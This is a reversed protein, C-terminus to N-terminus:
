NFPDTYRIKLNLSVFWIRCINSSTLNHMKWDLCSHETCLPGFTTNENHVISLLISPWILRGAQWPKVMVPSSSLDTLGARGSRCALSPWARGRAVGITWARGLLVWAAEFSRYDMTSRWPILRNQKRLRKPGHRIHSSYTLKADRKEKPWAKYPQIFDIKSGEVIVERSMPGHQAPSAWRAMADDWAHGLQRAPGVRAQCWEHRATSLRALHDHWPSLWRAEPKIAM